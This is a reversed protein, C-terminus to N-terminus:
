EDRTSARRDSAIRRPAGRRDPFPTNTTRRRRDSLGRREGHRRGSGDSASSPVPIPAQEGQGPRAAEDQFEDDTVGGGRMASRAPHWRWRARETGYVVRAAAVEDLPLELQAELRALERHVVGYCECARDELGARDVVRIKGRAYQILGEEQLQHAAVTMSERRVGLLRAIGEQTMRLENGPLGDMSLLLWRCLQQLLRHHRICVANQAVQTLLGQMYRLLVRQVGPITEFAQLLLAGKIRLARGGAQVEATYPMHQGAMLLPLGVVGHNGIIAAGMTAGDSMLSILSVLADVPFYLQQVDHDAQHLVQGRQLTVPEAAQGLDAGAQMIIDNLLRNGLSQMAM